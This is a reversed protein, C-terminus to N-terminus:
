RGIPRIPIIITNKELGLEKLKARIRGLSEDTAEVMGAFEVNDQKQKVGWVRENQHTTSDDLKELKKLQESSLAPGDPNSELIYDPGKQSPMTALKKQYKQVLDKRGQIPDHVSFHELHM